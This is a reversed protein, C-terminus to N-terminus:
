LRLVCATFALFLRNHELQICKLMDQYIVKSMWM